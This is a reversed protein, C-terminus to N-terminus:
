PEIWIGLVARTSAEGNPKPNQYELTVFDIRVRKGEEYHSVDGDMAWSTRQGDADVSFEPWEGQKYLKVIMGEIRETPVTGKRIAAWWQSSGFLGNDTRLALEGAEVTGAQVREVYERDRELAYVHIFETDSM